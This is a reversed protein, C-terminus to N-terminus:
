LITGLSGPGRKGYVLAVVVVNTRALFRVRDDAATVRGPDRVRAHPLGSIAASGARTRVFTFKLFISKLLKNKEFACLSMCILNQCCCQLDYLGLFRVGQGETRSAPTIVTIAVGGPLIGRHTQPFQPGSVHHGSSNTFIEGLSYGLGTKAL